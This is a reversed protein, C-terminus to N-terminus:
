WDERHYTYDQGCAKRVAAKGVTAKGVTEELFFQVYRSPDRPSGHRRDRAAFKKFGTYGGYQNKANYEGCWAVYSLNSQRLKRFQVSSTDFLDSFDVFLERLRGEDVETGEDIAAVGAACLLSVAVIVLLRRM